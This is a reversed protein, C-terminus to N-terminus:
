KKISPNEALEIAQMVKTPKDCVPPTKWAYPLLDEADCVLRPAEVAKRREELRARRKREEENM